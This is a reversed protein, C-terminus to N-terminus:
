KKARGTQPIATARKAQAELANVRRALMSVVVALDLKELTEVPTGDGWDVVAPDFGYYHYYAQWNDLGVKKSGLEASNWVFIVVPETAEGALWLVGGTGDQSAYAHSGDGLVIYDGDQWPAYVNKPGDPANMAALDAPITAGGTLLFQGPKGPLATVPVPPLSIPITQSFGTVENTYTIQYSGYVAYEHQCQNLSNYRPM